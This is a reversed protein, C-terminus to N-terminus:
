DESLNPNGDPLFFCLKQYFEIIISETIRKQSNENKMQDILCFGYSISEALLPVVVPPLAHSYILLSFSM